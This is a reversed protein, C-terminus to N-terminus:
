RGRTKIMTYYYIESPSIQKVIYATETHYLWRKSGNIDMVAAAVASATAEFVTEVKLADIKSDPVKRTYIKIGDNDQKLTWSDDTQAAAIKVCVMCFLILFTKM